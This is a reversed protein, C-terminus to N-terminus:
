RRRLENLTKETRSLAESLNEMSNACSLRLHREGNQGFVVGAATSVHAKELLLMGMEYSSQKFESFDPFLYFAGRPKVCPVRLRELGRYMLDIRKKYEEAMSRVSDQPGTLAELAASQVFSTSCTNLYLNLKAMERVIDERAIAYGVRWGTMAYTKSFSNVLITRNKMEPLSLMSVHQADYILKEYVEDSLVLLDNELAIIALAELEGRDMVHGTPNNPSNIVIVRSRASIKSKLHEFDVQFNKDKMLRYRVPTGEAMKIGPGYPWAPDSILVEDGPNLVAMMALTIACSGGDTVVVEKRPDIDVGTEQKVKKGVAERLPYIGSSSTYHTFGKDLAKKAANRIHEPTDFDPEGVELRIVDKMGQAKEFIAMIGSPELAKTRNSLWDKSSNM